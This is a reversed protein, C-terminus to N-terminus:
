NCQQNNYIRVFHYWDSVSHRYLTTWAAEQDPQVYSLVQQISTATSLFANEICNRNRMTGLFYEESPFSKRIGFAGFTTNHYIYSRGVSNNFLDMAGSLTRNQAMYIGNPQSPDFNVSHCEYSACVIGAEGVGNDKSAGNAIRKRAVLGCWGSHRFANSRDGDINGGPFYSAVLPDVQNKAEQAFICADPYTAALWGWGGPLTGSDLAPAMLKGGTKKADFSKISEIFDLRLRNEYYLDIIERKYYAQEQTKIDPFDAKIRAFQDSPLSDTSFDFTPYQKKKELLLQLLSQPDANDIASKRGNQSAFINAIYKSAEEKTVLQIAKPDAGKPIRVKENSLYGVETPNNLGVNDVAEVGDRQCSVFIASIVIGCYAAGRFLNKM